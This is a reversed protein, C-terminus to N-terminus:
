RFLESYVQHREPNPVFTRAYEIRQTVDAFSLYGLSVLALFGAGRVNALIPDKVQRVTLNFVDAHIQCWVDSQAGGGSINIVEFSRGIFREVCELLWRSNYAVGEFVARTLHERLTKLSINSFSGRVTADEVPTREGYLWPTFIVGNSGAPSRGALGDLLQCM